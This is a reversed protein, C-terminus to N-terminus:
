HWDQRHAAEVGVAVCGDAYRDVGCHQQGRVAAAFIDLGGAISEFALELAEFCQLVLDAAEADVRQRLLVHGVSSGFGLTQVADVAVGDHRQDSAVELTCQLFHQADGALICAHLGGLHDDLLVVFVAQDVAVLDRRVQLKVHLVGDALFRQEADQLLALDEWGFEVDIGLQLAGFFLM